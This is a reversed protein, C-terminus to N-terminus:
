RGYKAVFGAKAITHARVNFGVNAASATAPVDLKPVNLGGALNFPVKSVDIQLPPINVTAKLHPDMCFDVDATIDVVPRLLSAQIKM